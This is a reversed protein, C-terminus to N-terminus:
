FFRVNLCMEWFPDCIYQVHIYVHIYKNKEFFCHLVLASFLDGTHKSMVRDRQWTEVCEVHAKVGLSRKSFKFEKKQPKEHLKIYVSKVILCLM